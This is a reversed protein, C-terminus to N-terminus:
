TGLGPDTDMSPNGGDQGDKYWGVLQIAKVGNKTCEEGYKVPESYKVGYNQEPSNVQLKQWSTVDSIWDPLHPQEYWTARWQKYLDVGAHWDGNYCQLVVPVLKTTYNPHNFIFHYTRFVLHAPVEDAKGNGSLPKDSINDEHPVKNTVSSEGGPHQEFTLELLYPQNPSKMEVYLGNKQSQILCFLSYSSEFTKTPYFDGWYGKTNIFHPYIEASELNNYRMLRANTSSEKSPPNFDGFYPYDITEITLSSNNEITADFSLHGDHLTVTATLTIPLVGGYESSLNKLEIQVENDSIKEVKEAKQKQGRIFDYIIDPLPVFLRFLM